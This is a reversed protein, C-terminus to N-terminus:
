KLNQIHLPAELLRALAPNLKTLSTYADLAAKTDGTQSYTLALQYYSDAHSPNYHLATHFERIGGAVDGLIVLDKGLNHHAIYYDPRLRIAENLHWITQNLLGYKCLEAALNNHTVWNDNTVKLTHEFLTISNKWYGVQKWTAWGLAPFLVVALLVAVVRGRHMKELFDATAWVLVLFIGMLPIYTYRDAISQVGFKVFGAVPAMTFLYWLWGVLFYPRVARQQVALVTLFSLLVIAGAVQWNPLDDVYPYLVALDVPCFTKYLYQVYNAAAHAINVYFPPSMESVAGGQKQVILTLFCSAASLLVFPIKEILVPRFLPAAIPNQQFKGTINRGLPWVDLLLLVIPLSVLMPKTALGFVFLVLISLYRQITPNKTYDIYIKITLLFFLTSLVDKREVAWAVSEVHLPHLAFLAAVAASRWIYNTSRALIWFLLLSNAIHMLLNMLHHGIPQTGFISSDAMLSLWTLPFWNGDFIATLAWRLGDFSLGNRVHENEVIYKLDDYSSYGNGLVKWYAITTALCIFSGARILTNTRTFTM